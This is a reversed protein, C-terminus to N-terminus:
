SLFRFFFFFWLYLSVSVWCAVNSRSLLIIIETKTQRRKAIFIIFRCLFRTNIVLETIEKWKPCNCWRRRRWWHMIYDDGEEHIASSVRALSNGSFAPSFIFANWPSLFRIESFCYRKSALWLWFRIYLERHRLFLSSFLYCYYLLLITLHDFSNNIKDNTSASCLWDTLYFITIAVRSLNKWIGNRRRDESRRWCRRECQTTHNM